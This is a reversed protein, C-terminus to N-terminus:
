TYNNKEYNKPTINIFSKFIRLLHLYKNLPVILFDPYFQNLNPKIKHKIRQKDSLYSKHKKFDNALAHLSNKSNVIGYYHLLKLILINAQFLNM